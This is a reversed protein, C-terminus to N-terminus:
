ITQRFASLILRSDNRTRFSQADSSSVFRSFRDRLRFDSGASVWSRSIEALRPHQQFVAEEFDNRLPGGQLSWALACFRYLRPNDGPNTLQSANLWRYADPTPVHISKPSVVLLNLKPIDPLAYIEDGKAFGLARGGELFFPVDAGLTAAIEFLRERDIQKKSLRLYGQLAAAADSSGGGLGRGAPITKRLEIAVGDKVKFEHRLADVARYVLNKKMPEGSLIANGTVRLDIGSKRASKLRLEDKLSITQFITRLEHFGDPRKGLVELRLNIKAFAPIRVEPM